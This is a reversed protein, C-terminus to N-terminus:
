LLLIAVYNMCQKVRLYAAARLAYIASLLSSHIGTTACVVLSILVNVFPHSDDALCARGSSLSYVRDSCREISSMPRRVAAMVGEPLAAAMVIEPRVAAMVPEPRVASMVPEPRVVVMAIQPVLYHATVTM